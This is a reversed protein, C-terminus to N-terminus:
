EVTGLWLEMGGTNSGKHTVTLGSVTEGSSAGDSRYPCEETNSFNWLKVM